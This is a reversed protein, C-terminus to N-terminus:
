NQLCFKVPELLLVVGESVAKAEHKKASELQRGRERREDGNALFETEHSFHWTGYGTKM